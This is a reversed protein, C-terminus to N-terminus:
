YDFFGIKFFYGGLNMIKLMSKASLSLLYVDYSFKVHRIRFFFKGMVVYESNLEVVMCQWDSGEFRVSAASTKSESFKLGGTNM